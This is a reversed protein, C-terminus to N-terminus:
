ASGQVSVRFLSGPFKDISLVLLLLEKLLFLLGAECVLVFDVKLFRENDLPFGFNAVNLLANAFQVLQESIHRMNHMFLTILKIDNALIDLIDCAIRAAGINLQPACTPILLIRPVFHTTQQEYQRNDQRHNNKSSSQWLSKTNM